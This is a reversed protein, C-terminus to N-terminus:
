HPPSPISKSVANIIWGIIFNQTSWFGGCKLIKKVWIPQKWGGYLSNNPRFFIGIALFKTQRVWLCNFWGQFLKVFDDIYHKFYRSESYFQQAWWAM